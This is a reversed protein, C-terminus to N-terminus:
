NFIKENKLCKQWDEEFYDGVKKLYESDILPRQNFMSKPLLLAIYLIGYRFIAHYFRWLLHLVSNHFVRRKKLNFYKGFFRVAKLQKDNYSTHKRSLKVKNIDISCNLINTITFVFDKPSNKLQDYFLVVPKNKFVSDLFLIQEEYTFHKIKFFGQDKELDLFDRITGRFGNKIFRRYQSALYENHKRFVIIPTVNKFNNSFLTVEREFQRDFERSVLIKNSKSHQIIDHVKKYRNTPIYEVNKLHPFVRNQLFTSGTKSTGVHFFIHKQEIIM